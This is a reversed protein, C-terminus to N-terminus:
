LSELSPAGTNLRITERFLEKRSGFQIRHSNLTFSDPASFPYLFLLARLGPQASEKKQDM